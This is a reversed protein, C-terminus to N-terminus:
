KVIVKRITGDSMKLLNVGRQPMTINRGDMTYRRVVTVNSPSANVNDIANAVPNLEVTVPADKVEFKLNNLPINITVYKNTESDMYGIGMEGSMTYQGSALPVGEYLTMFKNFSVISSEKEDKYKYSINFVSNTFFGDPLPEGNYVFNVEFKKNLNPYFIFDNESPLIDYTYYVNSPEEVSFYLHSDTSIYYKQCEGYNLQSTYFDPYEPFCHLSDPQATNFKVQRYKIEYDNKGEEIPYTNNVFYAQKEEIGGECTPAVTLVCERKYVFENLSNDAFALQVGDIDWMRKISFGPVNPYIEANRNNDFAIPIIAENTPRLANKTKAFWAYSDELDPLLCVITDAKVLQTQKGTVYHSNCGSRRHQIAIDLGKNNTVFLSDGNEFYSCPVIFRITAIKDFDLPKNNLDYAFNKETLQMETTHSDINVGHCALVTAVTDNKQKNYYQPYEFCLDVKQAAKGEVNNVLSTVVLDNGVAKSEVLRNTVTEYFTPDTNNSYPWLYLARFTPTIQGVYKAANKLTTTVKLPKSEGMVLNQEKVNEAVYLKAMLYNTSTNYPMVFDPDDTEVTPYWLQYGLKGPFAYMCITGNDLDGPKGVNRNFCGYGRFCTGPYLEYYFSGISRANTVNCRKGKSDNVYLHCKVANRYDTEITQIESNGVIFDGTRMALEPRGKPEIAYEIKTGPQAFLLYGNSNSYQSFEVINVSRRLWDSIATNRNPVFFADIAKGELDVPPTFKVCKCRLLDDIRVIPRSDETDELVVSGKIPNIFQPSYFRYYLRDGFNLNLDRISARVMFDYAWVGYDDNEDNRYYGRQPSNWLQCKVVKGNSLQPESSWDLAKAVYISDNLLEPSKSFYIDFKPFDSSNLPSTESCAPGAIIVRFTGRFSKGQAKTKAPLAGLLLAFVLFLNLLSFHKM